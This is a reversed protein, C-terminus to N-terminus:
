QGRPAPLWGVDGTEGPEQFARSSTARRDTPQEAGRTPPVGYHHCLDHEVAAALGRLSVVPAAHILEASVPVRYHAGFTELGTVPVGVLGQARSAREVALWTPRGTERDILVGTITGVVEGSADHLVRGRAALARELMERDASSLQELTHAFPDAQEESHRRTM